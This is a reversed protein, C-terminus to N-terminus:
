SPHSLPHWGRRCRFPATTMLPGSKARATNILYFHVRRSGTSRDKTASPCITNARANSTHHAAPEALSVPFLMTAKPPAPHNSHNPHFTEGAIYLKDPVTQEDLCLLDASKWCTCKANSM